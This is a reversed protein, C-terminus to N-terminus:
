YSELNSLLVTKYTLCVSFAVEKLTLEHLDIIKSVLFSIKAEGKWSLKETENGKTKHCFFLKIRHKKADQSWYEFTFFCISHWWYWEVEIEIQNSTIKEEFQSLLNFKHKIFYWFIRSLEINQMWYRMEKIYQYM